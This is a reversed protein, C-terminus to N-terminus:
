PRLGTLGSHLSQIVPELDALGDVEPSTAIFQVVYERFPLAWMIAHYTADEFKMKLYLKAMRNGNITVLEPESVLEFPMKGEKVLAVLAKEYNEATIPEKEGGVDSALIKWTRGTSNNKYAIPESVALLPASADPKREEAELEPNGAAIKRGNEEMMKKAIINSHVMWGHPFDITFGFFPNAYRDGTIFSGDPNVIKREERPQVSSRETQTQPAEMTSTKPKPMDPGPAPNQARICFICLIASYALRLLPTSENM